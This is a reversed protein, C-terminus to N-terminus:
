LPTIVVQGDGARVGGTLLPNALTGTWSSGGGGGGGGCYGIASGGGGYYGGGGGSTGAYTDLCIPRAVPGGDGGAGLTGSTGCTSPPDYTQCAGGGGTQLGGGGGGGCHDCTRGAGGSAGGGFGHNGSWGIGGGGGCYGAGCTGGGGAGGTFTGKGAARGGGGGGAVIARNGLTMGGARVDSAGGGHPPDVNHLGIGGGNFGNRGGVFVYLVQGPTVTLDGRVHGGLGGASGGGQAGWVEVRVRSVGCPVSYTQMAGTFGFTTTGPVPCAVTLMTSTGPPGQEEGDHARVSCVFSDNQQTDGAPVTDGPFTTTVARAYATGNELWTAAYTIADGDADAAPTVITCTIAGGAVVSPPVEVVPATPPTNAITVEDSAIAVGDVVVDVRWTERKTTYAAPIRGTLLDTRVAGDQSWRVQYGTLDTTVSAFLDDATRPSEPLIKVQAAGEWGFADPEAPVGTACAAIMGGAVLAIMSTRLSMAAKYASM